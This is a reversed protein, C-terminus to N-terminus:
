EFLIRCKPFAKKIKEKESESLYAKSFTLMKLNLKYFSNPFKKINNGSLSLYELKQLEGFKEPLETLGASMLNLIQLNKLKNIDKPLAKIPTFGLSLEYLDKMNTIGSPFSTFNNGSLFLRKMKTLKGIEAPLNTLRRRSLSLNELNKFKGIQKPIVKVNTYELDLSIVYEPHSYQLAEELSSFYNKVKEATKEKVTPPTYYVNQSHVFGCMGLLYLISFINKM